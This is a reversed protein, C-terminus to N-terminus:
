QATLIDRTGIFLTFMGGGSFIQSFYVISNGLLPYLLIYCSLKLSAVALYLNVMSIFYRYEGDIFEDVPVFLM